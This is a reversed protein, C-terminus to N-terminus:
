PDPTHYVQVENLEKKKINTQLSHFTIKIKLLM